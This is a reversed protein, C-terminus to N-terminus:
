AEMIASRNLQILERFASDDMRALWSEDTGVISDALGQKDEIMTDIREELTGVTVMKHAFVTKKQGIRYARDTAQNEVAPNWWRDFHFVHNARTLTIGVGGAKLSLIFIGALSEPDQFTEIMQERRKRSTGGHLYNVPCGHRQRLHTELRDGIETFQTFLLLSDSESLAEAVMENLRTLKQSRKETFASGDQLFQAPHNCIQKLKMLTSLILGKRKIGELKQIEEQVDDVVAQYLSAQEKTLSCYVKQELKEPLDDIISRDTKLRRLIFPQVLRQLLRSKGEDGHRQIPTEYAKRFQTANGLYGPNLFNFLSWLDMLRNEIPTGTLAIRSPASLSFIAKAQASKPNKINQAEDVVVRHWQQGTLLERDRRALSFSTIVIDHTDCIVGLSAPEDARESGHHISTKLQPAFKNVEKQWNSLVSTPAVLLTPALPMTGSNNAYREREHLLLAIVQVTKGLGMDDALCPSLGLSEQQVLWSLGKQQYPRLRGQLGAPDGMPKLSSQQQLGKLTRGLAEDFVYETTDEDVEAVQKLLEGVTLGDDDQQHWQELMQTMQQHDLEMWEGRFRVLPTKADILNQWEKESVPEGGISLEYRYDVLSPLDFYGAGTGALASSQSKISAKVRLRARRRGQPTWWSPLLIKFGASELVLADDKLFTYATQLDLEFGIPHSSEMGQWLLPCIRAAHGLNVLLKREFQQGFEKLWQTKKAKSLEWWEVLDIRLSPDQRSAVFFSLSWDDDRKGNQDLRLGLVFGAGDEQGSRGLIDQHWSHWQQWRKATLDGAGPPKVGSGSVAAALWSDGLQSLMKKTVASDTVLRDLQQESFHRLLEFASLCVAHDHTGRRTLKDSVVRCIGPMSAAFDRLGQDYNVAAPSWGTHFRRRTGKRAPRQCKIVPLFQHQRVINRFHRAYQIWFKLDGGLHIGPRGLSASFQLQRLLLLPRGVALGYVKWTRWRYEDPLYEGNLQAMEPSPLPRAGTSPLTAYFHSLEPDLAKQVARTISLDSLLFSSLGDFDAIHSPHTGTKPAATGGQHASTEVWLIFQGLNEFRPGSAPIWTGHCIHM